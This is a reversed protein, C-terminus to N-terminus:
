YLFFTDLSMELYNLKLTRDNSMDTQEEEELFRLQLNNSPDHLFPNRLWDYSQFYINLFYKEMRGFHKCILPVIDKKNAGATKPFM